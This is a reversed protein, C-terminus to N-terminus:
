PAMVDAAWVRDFPVGATNAAERIREADAAEFLCISRLGDKALHSGLWQIDHRAICEVLKVGGQQFADLSVPQAFTREGVYVAMDM